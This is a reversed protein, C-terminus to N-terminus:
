VQYQNHASIPPNNKEKCIAFEAGLFNGQGEETYGPIILSMDKIYSKDRLSLKEQMATLM